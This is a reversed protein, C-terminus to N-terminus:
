QRRMDLAEERAARAVVADLQPPRHYAAVCCARSSAELKHLRQAPVQLRYGREELQAECVVITVFRERAVGVRLNTTVGDM